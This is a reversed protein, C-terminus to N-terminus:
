FAEDSSQQLKNGQEVLFLNYIQLHILSKKIFVM